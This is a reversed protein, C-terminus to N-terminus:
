AMAALREPTIEGDMPQGDFFQQLQRVASRGLRHCGNSVAGAIHPLLVVNHLTRFPHSAPPPEEATVDLLAQIRGRLLEAVLATEDVLIGRAVNIFIAGDRMASFQRQGLMRRTSPLAPACLCVVDSRRMLEDLGVRRVGMEAAQAEGIHPDALLVDVEFARLLRILHRGVQGAGIIGIAVNYLERVNIGPENALSWGGERTLQRCQFFGKLGSIILGLTTEAVGVALASNTTGVRIGREWIRPPLRGKVSGAAHVWGSLRPAADLMAQSIVPSGWGTLLADCCRALAPWAAGLEGETAEDPEILHYRERLVQLDRESYCRSRLEPRQLMLVTPRQDDISPQEPITNDALTM